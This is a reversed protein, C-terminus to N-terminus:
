TMVGRRLICIETSAILVLQNCNHGFTAVAAEGHISGVKVMNDPM